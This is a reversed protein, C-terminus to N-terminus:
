TIFSHFRSNSQVLEEGHKAAVSVRSRNLPLMKGLEAGGYGLQRIAFYSVGARFDGWIM